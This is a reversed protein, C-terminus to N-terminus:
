GYKQRRQYRALQGVKKKSFTLVDGLTGHAEQSFLPNAARMINKNFALRM